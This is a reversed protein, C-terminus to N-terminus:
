SGTAVYPVLDTEGRWGLRDMVPLDGSRWAQLIDAIRKSAFGDGFPSRAKAMQQYAVSDTLLREALAVIEHEDVGALLAIGAEIAEPRETDRRLVLVPKGFVPAEEQLGGSDTLVLYSEKLLAILEEYDVPRLLHIRPHGTLLERVPGQINPNLHVPYAVEVDPHRDVLTRIARCISRIPEGFNERRHATLLLLRAARREPVATTTPMRRAIEKVADVVTNGTLFIGGEDDAHERILSEACRRTPAFHLEALQTIVRRSMEEPFPSARIGTRLGAEVHGVPIGRYFAALAAAMASATDGQVVVVHPKWEDLLPTLRQLVAATVDHLGQDARMVDLDRDPVIDFIRMVQDLMERHQATACTFVSVAGRSRLEAILPALKIAEPRTGFSVLVRLAETM